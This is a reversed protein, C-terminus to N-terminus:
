QTTTYPMAGEVGHPAFVHRFGRQYTKPLPEVEFVNARKPENFESRSPSGIDHHFPSSPPSIPSPSQDSSSSHAITQSPPISTSPHSSSPVNQTHQTSTEIFIDNAIFTSWAINLENLNYFVIIKILSHHFLSRMQHEYERKQVIFAMKDISRFLYYPINLMKVRTFHM